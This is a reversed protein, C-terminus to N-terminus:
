GKKERHAGSVPTNGQWQHQMNRRARVRRERERERKREAELWGEWRCEEQEEEEHSLKITNTRCVPPPAAREFIICESIRSTTLFYLLKISAALFCYRCNNMCETYGVPNRIMQLFFAVHQNPISYKPLMKMKGQILVICKLSQKTVEGRIM